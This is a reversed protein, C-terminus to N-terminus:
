DEQTADSKTEAFNQIFKHLASYNSKRQKIATDCMEKMQKYVDPVAYNASVNMATKNSSAPVAEITKEQYTTIFTVNGEASALRLMEMEKEFSSEWDNVSTETSM